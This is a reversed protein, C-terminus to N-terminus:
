QVLADQMKFLHGQEPLPVPQGTHRHTSVAFIPDKPRIFPLYVSTLDLHERRFGEGKLTRNLRRFHKFGNSDLRRTWVVHGGEKCLAQMTRVAGPFDSPNVLGLMGCMLLIDARPAGLYPATSAADGNIFTIRGSLGAADFAAKGSDVLGPHLEVMLARIDDRRPHESIAGLLDRGDGACVSVIHIEGVPCADICRRIHAQVLSLRRALAPFQEYANHWQFWDV